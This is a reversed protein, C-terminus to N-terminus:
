WLWIGKPKEAAQRWQWVGLCEGNKSSSRQKDSVMTPDFIGEFKQDQLQCCFAFEGGNEFVVIGGPLAARGEKGTNMAFKSAWWDGNWHKLERRMRTKFEQYIEQFEDPQDRNYGTWQRHTQAGSISAFFKKYNSEGFNTTATLHYGDDGNDWLYLSINKLM